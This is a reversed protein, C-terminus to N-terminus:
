FVFKWLRWNTKVSDKDHREMWFENYALRTIKWRWFTSDNTYLDVFKMQFSDRNSMFKWTGGKFNNENYEGTWANITWVFGGWDRQSLGFEIQGNRYHETSDIGNFIVKDFYWKGQVRKPKSYLDIVPGDEYKSCGPLLLALICFLAMWKLKMNTLQFFSNQTSLEHM